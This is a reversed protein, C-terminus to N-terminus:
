LRGKLRSPGAGVHGWMERDPAELGMREGTGAGRVIRHKAGKPSDCMLAGIPRDPHAQVTLSFLFFMERAPSTRLGPAELM